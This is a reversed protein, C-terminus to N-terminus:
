NLYSDLNFNELASLELTTFDQLVYDEVPTYDLPRGIGFRLRYYKQTKLSESISRIGNHGADSADFSLKVKGFDLDLEDQIVLVEEPEIQYFRAIESVSKGSLNMFTQPKAFIVEGIKLIEASFKSSLEFNGKNNLYKDLILFGANHRNLQYKKGPNGLGVILKIKKSMM